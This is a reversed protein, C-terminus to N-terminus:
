TDPLHELAYQEAQLKHAGYISIPNVPDTERYPGHEGDFVYDTSLYVFRSGCAKAIAVLNHTSVVTKQYSEEQNTECYDVHTLAGCHVIVDPKWLDSSRRQPFS